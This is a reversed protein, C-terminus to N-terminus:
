KTFFMKIATLLLFVAFCRRLLVAEMQLSLNAGMWAGVFAFGLIIPVIKWDIMGAKTYKFAGVLATPVVIALSTGIATHPDYARLLILFPVFILGGGVGFLGSAIGGIIGTLGLLVYTM